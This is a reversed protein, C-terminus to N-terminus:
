EQRVGERETYKMQPSTFKGPFLFRDVVNSQEEEKERGGERKKEKNKKMRVNEKLRMRRMPKTKKGTKNRLKINKGENTWELFKATNFCIKKRERESKGGGRPFKKRNRKQEIEPMSQENRRGTVAVMRPGRVYLGLERAAREMSQWCSDTSQTANNDDNNNHCNSGYEREVRAREERGEKMRGRECGLRESISRLVTWNEEREGTKEQGLVWDEVFM